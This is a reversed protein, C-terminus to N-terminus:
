DDNHNTTAYLQTAAIARIHSWPPCVDTIVAPRPAVWLQSPYSCGAGARWAEVLKKSADAFLDAPRAQLWILLAAALNIGSLLDAFTDEGRARPRSPINRSWEPPQRGISLM